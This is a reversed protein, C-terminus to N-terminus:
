NFSDLTQNVKVFFEFFTLCAGLYCILFYIYYFLRLRNFIKLLDTYNTKNKKKYANRCILVFLPTTSSPVLSSVSQANLNHVSTSQVGAISATELLPVKKGMCRM